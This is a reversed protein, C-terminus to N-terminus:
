SRRFSCDSEKLMKLCDLIYEINVQPRIVKILQTGSETFVYVNEELTQIESKKGKILGIIEDTYMCKEQNDSVDLSISVSNAMMLGCEELEMINSFQVNYAKM